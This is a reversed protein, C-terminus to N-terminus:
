QGPQRKCERMLGIFRWWCLGMTAGGFALLYNTQETDGLVGLWAPPEAFKGYLGVGVLVSGAADLLALLLLKQTNAKLEAQPLQM